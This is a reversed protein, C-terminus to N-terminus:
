RAEVGIKRLLGLIEEVLEDPNRDTTDFEIADEAPKLPSVARTRDRTDRDAIEAALAELDPTEGDRELDVARRKAREMPTATLFLKLTADPAVVTGIDRGEAVGGHQLLLQRQKAVLSKRVKQHVSVRSAAISVERSRLEPGPLSGDILVTRDKVALELSEALVFLTTEDDLDVGQALARLAVTRYVAGTDLHVAGLKAALTRAVTSKGSGAPGDIAVVVSGQDAESM